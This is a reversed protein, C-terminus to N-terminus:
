RKECASCLGTRRKNEGFSKEIEKLSREKEFTWGASFNVM